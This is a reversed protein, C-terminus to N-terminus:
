VEILRKGRGDLESSKPDDERKHCVKAKVAFLGVDVTSEEVSVQVFFNVHIMWLTETLATLITYWKDAEQLFANITQLLRRVVSM